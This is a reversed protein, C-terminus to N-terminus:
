KIRTYLSRPTKDNPSVMLSDGSISIGINAYRVNPFLSDFDLFLSNEDQQLIIIKGEKGNNYRFLGYPIFEITYSNLKIFGTEGISYQYQWKGYIPIYKDIFIEDKYGKECATLFTFILFLSLFKRRKM